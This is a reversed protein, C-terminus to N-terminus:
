DVRVLARSTGGSPGWARVRYVGAATARGADDRGDWAWSRHGPAGAVVARRVLRGRADVIAITVPADDFSEFALTAGGGRTPNPFPSALLVARGGALPADEVGVTTSEIKFDDVGVEGLIADPQQVFPARDHRILVRDANALAFRYGMGDFSIIQSFNASDALNVTFESWSGNPPIFGTNCQWFNNVNGIAFHIEFAQDGGVDNLSFRVRDAGAALWDGVYNAGENKAGLRSAFDTLAIQLFGDGAGGVGGTGPNSELAGGDWGAFNGAGPFSEVFGITPGATAPVHVLAALALAIAGFGLLTRPSPHQSM